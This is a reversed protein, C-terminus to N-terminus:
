VITLNTKNRQNRRRKALQFEVWDKTFMFGLFLVLLKLQWILNEKTGNHLYTPTRANWAAELRKRFPFM